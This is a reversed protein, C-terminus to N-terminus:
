VGALSEAVSSLFAESSESRHAVSALRCENLENASSCFAVSSIRDPVGLLIKGGGLLLAVCKEACEYGRYFCIKIQKPTASLLGSDIYDEFVYLCIV